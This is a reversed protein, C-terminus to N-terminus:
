MMPPQQQLLLSLILYINMKMKHRASPKAPETEARPVVSQDQRGSAESNNEDGMCGYM